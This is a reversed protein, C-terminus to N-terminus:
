MRQTLSINLTCRPGLVTAPITIESYLGICIYDSTTLYVNCSLNITRATYPSSANNLTGSVLCGAGDLDNNNQANKSIFANMLSQYYTYNNPFTFTYVPIDIATSIQYMGNFPVKLRPTGSTFGYTTAAFVGGQNVWNSNEPLNVAYTIYRYGPTTIPTSVNANTLLSPTSGYAWRAYVLYNNIINGTITSNSQIPVLMDM